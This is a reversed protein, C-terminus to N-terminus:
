TLPRDRPQLEVIGLLDAAEVEGDLGQWQNRDPTLRANYGVAWPAPMRPDLLLLAKPHVEGARIELEVGTVLVWVAGQPGTWCALAPCCRPEDARLLSQGPHWRASLHPALEPLHRLLDDTALTRTARRLTQVSPERGAVVAEAQMLAVAESGEVSTEPTPLRRWATAGSSLRALFQLETDFRLGSAFTHMLAPADAAPRM